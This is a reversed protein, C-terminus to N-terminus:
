ALESRSFRIYGTAIWTRHALCHPPVSRHAREGQPRLVFVPPVLLAFAPVVGGGM